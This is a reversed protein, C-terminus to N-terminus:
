VKPMNIGRLAFYGAHSLLTSLHHIEIGFGKLILYTVIEVAFKKQLAKGTEAACRVQIMDDQMQLENPFGIIGQVHVAGEIEILAYGHAWAAYDMVVVAVSLHM